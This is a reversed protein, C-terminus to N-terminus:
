PWRSKPTTNPFMKMAPWQTRVLSAEVVVLPPRSARFAHRRRTADTRCDHLDSFADVRSNKTSPSPSSAGTSSTASALHRTSSNIRRDGRRLHLRLAPEAQGAGAFFCGDPGCARGTGPLPAVPLSCAGAPQQTAGARRLAVERDWSWRLRTLARRARTPWATM